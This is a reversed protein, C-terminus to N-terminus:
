VSCRTQSAMESALRLYKNFLGSSVRSRVLLEERVVAFLEAWAPGSWGMMLLIVRLKGLRLLGGLAERLIVSESLGSRLAFIILGFLSGVLMGQEALTLKDLGQKVPLSAAVQLLSVFLIIKM